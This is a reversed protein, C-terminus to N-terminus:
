ATKEKAQTWFWWGKQPEELSESTTVQNTDKAEAVENLEQTIQEQDETIQEVSEVTVSSNSEDSETSSLKPSSVAMNTDLSLDSDNEEQLNLSTSEISDHQSSLNDLNKDESDSTSEEVESDSSEEVDTFEVNTTGERNRRETEENLSNSLWVSTGLMFTERPFLYFTYTLPIYYLPVQYFMAEKFHKFISSIGNAFM